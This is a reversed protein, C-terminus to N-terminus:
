ELEISELMVEQESLLGPHHDQCYVCISEEREVDLAGGCGLCKMEAQVHEFHLSAGDGPTGKALDRWYFRISEERDDTFPGILLRISVIRRGKASTLATALLTETLDFEHMIEKLNIGLWVTDLISFTM